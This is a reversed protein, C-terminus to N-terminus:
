RFRIRKVYENRLDINEDRPPPVYWPGHMKNISDGCYGAKKYGEYWEVHKQKDIEHQPNEYKSIEGGVKVITYAHGFRGIFQEITMGKNTLTLGLVVDHDSYYEDFKEKYYVTGSYTFKDTKTQFRTWKVKWYNKEYSPNGDRDCWLNVKSLFSNHFVSKYPSGDIVILPKKVKVAQFNLIVDVDLKESLIYSYVKKPIVKSFLTGQAPHKIYKPCGNEVLILFKNHYTENWSRNNHYTFRPVTTSLPIENLHESFCLNLYHNRNNFNEFNLSYVQGLIQKEFSYPFDWDLSKFKELVGSISTQSTLPFWLHIQYDENDVHYRANFLDRLKQGKSQFSRLDGFIVFTESPYKEVFKRVVGHLIINQPIINSM